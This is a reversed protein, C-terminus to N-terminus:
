RMYTRAVHEAFKRRCHVHRHVHFIHFCPPFFQLCLVTVNMVGVDPTSYVCQIVNSHM